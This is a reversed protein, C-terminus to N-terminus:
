AATELAAPPAGALEDRLTLLRIARLEWWPNRPDPSATLLDRNRGM